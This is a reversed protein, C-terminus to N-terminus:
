GRPGKKALRKLGKELLAVRGSPVAAVLVDDAALTTRPKPVRMGKGALILPIAGPPLPLDSVRLDDRGPRLEVLDVALETLPQRGVLVGRPLLSHIVRTITEHPSATGSVGLHSYVGTYGPRHVLAFVHEVGLERALLSTMLNAEDSGTVAILADARGVQEDRLFALNTGDGHLIQVDDLREALSWCRPREREIIRDLLGLPGLLGALQYGVDGGGVITTRVQGAAATLEQLVELLTLPAGAILAVDGVEAHEVESVERLQGARVVARVAEPWSTARSRSSSVLSSHEDVLYSAVQVLGGAFAVVERARSAALLRLLEVGVLRSACLSADIGLVGQEFGRESAYFAPDDVRAVTQAAGLSRALAATVLNVADDPTVAVVLDARGVEAKELVGRHMGNGVLTLADLSEEAESLAKGSSDVIILEADRQLSSGLHRGVEGAGVIVIRRRM